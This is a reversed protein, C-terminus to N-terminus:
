QKSQDGYRQLKAHATLADDKRRRERFAFIIALLPPVLLVGWFPIVIGFFPVVILLVVPALLSAWVPVKATRKLIIPEVVFGNIMVIIAYLGLVYGLRYYDDGSSTVLVTFVPGILAFVGGINPIFQCLAGIVAWLPAFPIHLLWLGILWMVGTILSQLTVARWWNLLAGGATRLSSEPM